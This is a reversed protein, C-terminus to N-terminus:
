LQKMETKADNQFGLLLEVLKNIQAKTLRFTYRMNPMGFIVTAMSGVNTFQYILKTYAALERDLQEYEALKEKMEIVDNGTM